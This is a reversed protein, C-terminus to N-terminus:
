QYRCCLSFALIHQSAVVLRTFLSLPASSLRGFFSFSSSISLLIAERVNRSQAIQGLNNAYVLGMTAGCLYVLFYLWFEVRKALKWVGLMGGEQKLKEENENFEQIRSGGLAKKRLEAISPEAEEAVGIQVGDCDHVKRLAKHLPVAAVLGVMLLLIMSLVVSDDLVPVLTQVVTCAGTAGAILFVYLLSSITGFRAPEREKLLPAAVLSVGLPVFCNLLLYISKNSSNRGLIVQAIAIYIKASLGTYSTSLGVVFQHDVPFDRMATVYCATNFWCISNGALVQLLLYQWYSVAAIKNALFLFQIGYGIFGITSGIALVSWLPLWAAAVGSCWGLLKGADSAVALNNLQVQTVGLRAKLESSYAPFDTNTSSISQLWIIAVLSLWPLLLSM